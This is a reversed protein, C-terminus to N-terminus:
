FIAKLIVSRQEMFETAFERYSADISENLVTKDNEDDGEDDDLSRALRRRKVAGVADEQGPMAVPESLQKQQPQQAVRKFGKVGLDSALRTFGQTSTAAKGTYLYDLLSTLEAYTTGRPMFIIPLSGSVQAEPTTLLDQLMYTAHVIVNPQFM